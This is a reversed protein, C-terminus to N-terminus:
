TLGAFRAKVQEVTLGYDELSYSHKPARPGKKSEAHIEHMAQLAPETLSLDFYKYIAQVTGIPDAVFDGYEVDYFQAPNHKARVANFRELGRAWTDLSDAGITAGVYANSTGATAAEALSCMSAMLTEAPRHCQVVLADPFAAMLADLAHLHSPNKLVWRKGVDNLGILQLNKRYRRYTPIWDEEALWQAYTPLHALTEYAVAHLSQRLLQWCEELEEAGMFHLGMFEPNEVHHQEFQANFRAFLANDKWSDRPPRPQPFEALWLQLGQHAPDAGLLRHLATTGTRVLGTVFIPREVPVDAYEPYQKWGAQAMLRAALAGRLNVHCTKSGSPTLDADRQYSDLIVALGELYNDDDPGFDDLGVLRSASELLDDVTGVDTREAM